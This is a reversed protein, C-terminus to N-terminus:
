KEDTTPAIRAVMISHGCSTCKQYNGSLKWTHKEKSQIGCRLCNRWHYIADSQYAGYNHSGSCVIQIVGINEECNPTSNDYYHHLIKKWDYGKVTALYESGAQWLVSNDGRGDSYTGKRYGASFVQGGTKASSIAAFPWITDVAGSVRKTQADTTLFYSRFSVIDTTTLDCGKDERYHGIAAWWGFMKTAMAVAKIAELSYLKRTSPNIATGVENCTARLVFDKRSLTEVTNKENKVKITAPQTTFPILGHGIGQTSIETDGCSASLLTRKVNEQTGCMAGVYWLGNEKVLIVDHTSIGNQFYENEKSCTFNLVVRYYAYSDESAYYEELERYFRPADKNDLPTIQLLEVKEVALIGLGATINEENSVFSVYSDSISPAFCEAWARWEQQDICDFFHTLADTKSIYGNKEHIATAFAPSVTSALITCLLCMVLAFRTIQRRKM